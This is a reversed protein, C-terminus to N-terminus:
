KVYDNLGWFEHILVLAARNRPKGPVYFGQGPAGKPLDWTVAHGQVPTFALPAPLDHAALFNPDAAFAVMGACAPCAPTQTQILITMALTALM